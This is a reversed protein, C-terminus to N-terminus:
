KNTIQRFVDAEKEVVANLSYYYDIAKIANVGVEDNDANVVKSLVKSIAASDFGEVLYGNERDVIIESIGGVNTGVCILGCAMAELLTKPMGEHLSPLIFYKYKNLVNPLSDNPVVGMLRIKVHRGRVYEKLEQEQEGTGYIDLDVGAKEVADILNYINKVKSLRGVFIIRNKIKENATPYFKATDIYNPIINIMNGSLHYMDVLYRKNHCSTVIAVDCNNYAVNEVLTYRYNRIWRHPNIHKELQTVTYGTRLVLKKNYLKSALVASWSGDVQNTKLIQTDKLKSRWFFPLMFSYLLDGIKGYFVKPKPCVIIKPHLQGLLKLEYEYKEDQSGYTFWLVESLTNRRLHEEYLLKERSFLGSKIWTELSMGRTFFLALKM